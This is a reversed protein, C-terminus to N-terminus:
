DIKILNQQQQSLKVQHLPQESWKTPFSHVLNNNSPVNLGYRLLFLFTELAHSGRGKPNLNNQATYQQNSTGVFFIHTCFYAITYPTCSCVQFNCMCFHTKTICSCLWANQMHLKWTQQEFGGIESLFFRVHLFLIEM